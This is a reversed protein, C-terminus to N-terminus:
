PRRWTRSRSIPEKWFRESLRYRTITARTKLINERGSEERREQYSEGFSTDGLFLLDFRPGSRRERACLTIVKSHQLGSPANQMMDEM